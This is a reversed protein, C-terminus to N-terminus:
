CVLEGRHLRMYTLSSTLVCVIAADYPLPYEIEEIDGVEPKGQASRRRRLRM